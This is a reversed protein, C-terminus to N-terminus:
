FKAGVDCAGASCRLRRKIDQHRAGTNLGEKVLGQGRGGAACFFKRAFQSCLFLFFAQELRGVAGPIDDCARHFDFAAAKGKRKFYCTGAVVLAFFLTYQVVVQFPNLTRLLLKPFINNIGWIVLAALAPIIWLNIRGAAQTVASFYRCDAAM